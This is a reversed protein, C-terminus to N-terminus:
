RNYHHGIQHYNQPLKRNFQKLRAHNHNSHLLQFAPWAELHTAQKWLWLEM